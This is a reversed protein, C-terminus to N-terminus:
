SGYITNIYLTEGEPSFEVGEFYKLDGMLDSREILEGQKKKILAEDYYGFRDRDPNKNFYDVVSSWEKDNYPSSYYEELISKLYPFEEPYIKIYGNPGGYYRTIPTQIIYNSFGEPLKKKYPKKLPKNKTRRVVDRNLLKEETQYTTKREKIIDSCVQLIRSSAKSAKLLSPTDLENCIRQIMEPPYNIWPDM